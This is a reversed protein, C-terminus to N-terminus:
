IYFNQFFLEDIFKSILLTEAINEDQGKLYLRDKYSIVHVTESVCTKLVGSFSVSSHWSTAQHYCLIGHHWFIGQKNQINKNSM